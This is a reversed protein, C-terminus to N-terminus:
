PKNWPINLDTPFDKAASKTASFKLALLMPHYEATTPNDPSVALIIAPTKHSLIPWEATKIYPVRKEKAPVIM